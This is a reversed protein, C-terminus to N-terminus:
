KNSNIRDLTRQMKQLKMKKVEIHIGLMDKVQELMNEVDAIEEIISEKNTCAVKCGMIGDFGIIYGYFQLEVALEQLEEITKYIQANDGYHNRTVEYAHKLERSM